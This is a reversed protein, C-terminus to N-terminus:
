KLRYPQWGFGQAPRGVKDAPQSNLRALARAVFSRLQVESKILPNERLEGRKTEILLGEADIKAKLECLRDQAECVTTLEAVILPDSLDFQAAISSWLTAGPKGLTSPPTAPNQDFALQNLRPRKM